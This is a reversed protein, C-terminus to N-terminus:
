SHYLSIFKCGTNQLVQFQKKIEDGINWPFIILYDPEFDIVATPELITNQKRTFIEWNKVKIRRVCLTCIEGVESLKYPIEKLQAM